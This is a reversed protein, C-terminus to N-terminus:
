GGPELWRLLATTAAALVVVVLFPARRWLALAAVALGATRADVALRGDAVFTQTAILAALLAVPVVGAVRAVAPRNLASEPVLLGALKLALCGATALLIWSWSM